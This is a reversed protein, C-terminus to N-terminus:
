ITKYYLEDAGLTLGMIKDMDEVKATLMIIPFFYHERIKQCIQFGDIDPLM